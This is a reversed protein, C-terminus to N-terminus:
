EATPIKMGCDVIFSSLKNLGSKMLKRGFAMVNWSLDIMFMEWKSFHRIQRM